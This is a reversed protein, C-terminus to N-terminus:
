PTELFMVAEKSKINLEGITTGKLVVYSEALDILKGTETKPQCFLDVDSLYIYLGLILDKSM